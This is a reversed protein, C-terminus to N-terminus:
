KQSILINKELIIKRFSKFKIYTDKKPAYGLYLEPYSFPHLTYMKGNIDEFKHSETQETLVQTDEIFKLKKVILNEKDKQVAM